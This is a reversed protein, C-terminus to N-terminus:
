HCQEWPMKLLGKTEVMVNGCSSWGIDTGAAFTSAKFCIFRVAAGLVSFSSLDSKLVGDQRFFGLCM